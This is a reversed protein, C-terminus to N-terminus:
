CAADYVALGSPTRSVGVTIPIYGDAISDYRLARISSYRHVLRAAFTVMQLPDGVLMLYDEKPDFDDIAADIRSSFAPPISMGTLEDPYVYRRNVYQAVGYVGSPTIDHKPPHVLWVRGM